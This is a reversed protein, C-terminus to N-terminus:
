AFGRLNDASMQGPAFSHYVEPEQLANAHLTDGASGGWPCSLQTVGEALAKLDKVAALYRVSAEHKEGLSPMLYYRAMDCVMRTLVPPAVYTVPDGMVAAPKTCGRLPLQYVRGLYGDAFATADTLARTVAQANLQGSDDRDTLQTLELEGFRDIMDNVTAYNM